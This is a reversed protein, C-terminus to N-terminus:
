FVLLLLTLPTYCSSRYPKPLTLPTYCHMFAHCASSTVELVETTRHTWVRLFSLTWLFSRYCQSSHACCCVIPKSLREYYTLGNKRNLTPHEGSRQTALLCAQVLDSLNRPRLQISELVDGSWTLNVPTSAFTQAHSRRRNSTLDKETPTDRPSCGALAEIHRPPAM